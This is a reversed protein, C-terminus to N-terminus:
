QAFELVANLGRNLAEIVPSVDKECGVSVRILYRSLHLEHLIEDPEHYHALLTYPCLLTENSGLSPAKHIPKLDANYFTRLVELHDEKMTFSIVSGAGRLLRTAVTHCKHSPLGNFHVKEVAPHQDLFEAVKLANENCQRMRQEFDQLHEWLCLSELPSM